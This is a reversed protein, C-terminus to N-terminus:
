MKKEKESEQKRLRPDKWFWKEVEGLYLTLNAYVWGEGSRVQAIINPINNYSTQYHGLIWITEIENM